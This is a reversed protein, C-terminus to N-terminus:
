EWFWFEDGSDDEVALYDGTLDELGFEEELLHNRIRKSPDYRDWEVVDVLRELKNVHSQLVQFCNSLRLAQLKVGDTLRLALCQVLAGHTDKGAVNFQAFRLNLDRLKPLPTKWVFSQGAKERSLPKLAHILEDMNPSTVMLVQLNKLGSFITPWSNKGRVTTQSRDVDLSVLKTFDLGKLVTRIFSARQVPRAGVFTLDLPNHRPEEDAASTRAQFKISHEQLFAISLHDISSRISHRPTVNSLLVPLELSPLFFLLCRLLISTRRPFSISRIALDCNSIDGELHLHSLQPLSVPAQVQNNERTRPLSRSIILTELAPCRSLADLFEPLSPIFTSNRIELHTLNRLLPSDWPVDLEYISLRRLRPTAGQFKCLLPPPFPTSQRSLYLSELIPAPDNLVTLLRQCSESSATIHLVRIRYLHSLALNVAEPLVDYPPYDLKVVLPSIGSRRLMEATLRVNAFSLSSWLSPFEMMVSRWHHCVMILHTRQVNGCMFDTEDLRILIKFIMALIEPPLRTIPANTSPRRQFTALLFKGLTVMDRQVCRDQASM